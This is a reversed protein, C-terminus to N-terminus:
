KRLSEVPPCKLVHVDALPVAHYGLMSDSPNIALMPPKKSHAGLVWGTQLNGFRDLYMVDDGVILPRQFGDVVTGESM